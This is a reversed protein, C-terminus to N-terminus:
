ATSPEELMAQGNESPGNASGEALDRGQPHEQVEVNALIPPYGGRNPTAEITALESAEVTGATMYTRGGPYLYFRDNDLMKALKSREVVVIPGGVGFKSAPRRESLRGLAQQISPKNADLGDYAFFTTAHVLKHPDDPDPEPPREDVVSLVLDPKPLDPHDRAMGQLLVKPYKLARLKRITAGREVGKARRAEVDQGRRELVEPRVVEQFATIYKEVLEIGIARRGLREGEAVVVGSGAFPDFVVDDEDTSLLVLREVLDPPLPCAHQIATTGWTGQVPIPIEWVNDPVKGAPNYREPWKVWWETLEEPDRLRDVRYKFADGKVFFLVYEFANRLRGPSSWPLTKDKKWILVDRLMWGIDAIEEAIQFPLPELRRPGEGDDPRLTDAIVWLCGDDKTHKYVARFVRRLEVLFDEYPQGWGIQDPHKYNKLNGYPPSTITCTLLPEAASSYPALLRDLLRADGEHVTFFKKPARKIKHAKSSV